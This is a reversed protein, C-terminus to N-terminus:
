VSWSLWATAAHRHAAQCLQRGGVVCGRGRRRPLGGAQGSVRAKRGRGLRGRGLRVGVVCTGVRSACSPAHRRPLQGPGLVGGAGSLALRGCVVIKDPHLRFKRLALAFILEVVLLPQVVAVEGLYLAVGSLVFVGAAFAQGVLWVPQRILYWGVQWRSQGEPASVGALRAFIAWSANCFGAGLACIVTIV